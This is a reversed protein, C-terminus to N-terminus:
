EEPEIKSRLWAKAFTWHRETTSTSVGLQQAAQANTLGAFYRLCVLDAKQPHHERLLTLAEDLALLDEDQQTVLDDDRLEFKAANGGRKIRKRARAADVLIRRMALAAAAFFHGRSSWAPDDRDGILKLWVEHVLATSQLTHNEELRMKNGAIRKLEDYVVSFLKDAADRDGNSAADLLRTVDISSSTM